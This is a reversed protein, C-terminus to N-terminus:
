QTASAEVRVAPWDPAIVGVSTFLLGRVNPRILVTAQPYFLPLWGVQQVAIEEAQNYLGLREQLRRPDSLRDAEETLRDFDPNEWHGNNYPSGSHLQLSLFNQPDPYDMGWISLYMDMGTLPDKTMADLRPNFDTLPIPELAVNVGLTDRWNAQLTEAVGELGQGEPYTLSVPPLESGSLYGAQGLSARAGEPDYAMQDLPLDAGPLDPPLIRSAANVSDALVEEALARKDVARAFAQRVFVNDFPPRSNNFGVFRVAPASITQLGPQDRVEALREAPVGAQLTGMVDVEGALYADVAQGVDAYFRFEVTEVGPPGGWYFPNPELVLRQGAAYERVRFPGTGFAKGRWDEGAAEIQGPPVIYALAYTLQSLFYAQPSQLRIEVTRADVARVGELSDREGSAVAEVGVIGKLFEAAFPRGTAPSVTRNLSHVVAEATAPTGDGFRLNERLTFTFVTGDDSVTWSEAAAGQVELNRDLQVLGSFILGLPINTQYDAPRAPDLRVIDAIGELSWRLTGGSAQGPRNPGPAACAALLLAFIM